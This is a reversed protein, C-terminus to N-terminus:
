LQRVKVGSQALMDLSRQDLYLKEYVVESIGANVIMRACRACPSLLSYMTGGSPNSGNLAAQVLANEEAHGCLCGDLQKGSEIGARLRDCQTPHPVGTPVGNYGTAIVHGRPSVLVAGTHRSLCTSRQCTIRAISMFVDDRPPRDVVIERMVAELMLHLPQSGEITIWRMSSQKVYADYADNMELWAGAPWGEIEPRRALADDYYQLRVHVGLHPVQSVREDLRRVQEPAWQKNEVPGYVADSPFSRDFIVDAGTQIAMEVSGRDHGQIDLPDLGLEIGRNDKYVAYGLKDGVLRALTSKGSGDVGEFIIIM